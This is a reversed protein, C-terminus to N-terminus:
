GEKTGEKSDGEFFKNERLKLSWILASSKFSQTLLGPGGRPPQVDGNAHGAIM